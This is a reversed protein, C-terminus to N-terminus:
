YSIPYKFQPIFGYTQEPKRRDDTDRVAIYDIVAVLIEVSHKLEVVVVIVQM